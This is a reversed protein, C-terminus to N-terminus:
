LENLRKITRGMIQALSLIRNQSDILTGQNFNIIIDDCISIDNVINDKFDKKDTDIVITIKRDVM